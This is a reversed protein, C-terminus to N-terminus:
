RPELGQADLDVLNRGDEELKQWVNFGKLLRSRHKYNMRYVRGPEATPIEPALDRRLFFANVGSPEVAVLRYGKRGALKTLAGLSAGYFYASGFRGEIEFKPDYPITVSREPGFLSNYEIIVIRPACAQLKEWVWYENGDIDLSLVDVEGSFGNSEVLEDVNERTIWAQSVQVTPPVWGQLTTVNKASADVMMGLFGLDEALFGSNGGNTGAGLEVFRGVPPGVAQLLGYTIGDEENQSRLRFRQATLARPFNGGGGITLIRLIATLSEQAASVERRVQAVGSELRALRAEAETTTSSAEPSSM